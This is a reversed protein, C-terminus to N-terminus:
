KRAHDDKKKAKMTKLFLQGEQLYDNESVDSDSIEALSKEDDKLKFVKKQKWSAIDLLDEDKHLNFMFIQNQFEDQDIEGSKFENNVDYLKIFINKIENKIVIRLYISGQLYAWTAWYSIFFQRTYSIKKVLKALSILIDLYMCLSLDFEEKVIGLHNM